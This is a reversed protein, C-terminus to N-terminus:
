VSKSKDSSIEREFIEGAIIKLCNATDALSAEGFRSVLDYVRPQELCKNVGCVVVASPHLELVKSVVKGGKTQSDFSGEGTIVFDSNAVLEKLELLESVIDIGRKILVNRFGAVLGGSIGGAAGTFERHGVDQGRIACLVRSVKEMREEYEAQMDERIGKQPGFVRTSGLRGLMPNNVDCAVTLKLDEAMSSKSIKVSKIKDLDKGTIFKPREYSSGSEEYFEFEFAELPYLVSLGGDTTASGGLGILFEHIGTSYLYQILEGTGHSTTNLPNRLSNPVFEIGSLRALEIIGLTQNPTSLIGYEGLICEGLPGTIQKKYLQLCHSISSRSISSLFGEGGDSLPLISVQLNPSHQLFGQRLSDCVELSSLSDKFNSCAILLRSM